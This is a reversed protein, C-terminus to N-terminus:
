AASTVRRTCPLFFVQRNPAVLRAPSGGITTGGTTARRENLRTRATTTRMAACAYTGRGATGNGAGHSRVALKTKDVATTSPSQREPYSLLVAGARIYRRVTNRSAGLRKAIERLSVHDRYNWRRIISLIAMDIVRNEREDSLPGTHEV